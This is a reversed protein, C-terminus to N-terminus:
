LKSPQQETRQALLANKENQDMVQTRIDSVILHNTVHNTVYIKIYGFIRYWADYLSGTIIDDIM